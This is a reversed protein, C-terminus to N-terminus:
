VSQKGKPVKEKITLANESMGLRTFTTYAKWFYDGAKESDKALEAVTAIEVYLKASVTTEEGGSTEDLSELAIEYQKVAADTKNRASFLRAKVLDRKFRLEADSIEVDLVTKLSEAAQDIHKQNEVRNDNRLSLHSDATAVAIAIEDSATGLKNQRLQNALQLNRLASSPRQNENYFEALAIYCRMMEVSDSGYIIQSLSKRHILIAFKDESDLGFDDIRSELESLKEKPPRTDLNADPNNKFYAVAYTEGADVVSRSKSAAQSTRHSQRGSTRASKSEAGSRLGRPSVLRSM